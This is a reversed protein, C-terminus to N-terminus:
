TRAYDQLYRHLVQEQARAPDEIADYWPQLQGQLMQLATQPDLNSM